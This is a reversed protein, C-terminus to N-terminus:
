SRSQQIDIVFAGFCDKCGGLRPSKFVVIGLPCRAFVDGGPRAHQHDFVLGHLNFQKGLNKGVHLQKSALISQFTQADSRPFCGIQDQQVNSQGVNGAPFHQPDQALLRAGLAGQGDEEGAGIAFFIFRAAQFGAGDVVDGLGDVWGNDTGADEIMQLQLAMPVEEFLQGM